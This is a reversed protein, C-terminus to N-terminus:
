DEKETYMCVMYTTLKYSLHKDFNMFLVLQSDRKPAYNVGYSTKPGIGLSLYMVGYVVFGVSCLFCTFIETNHKCTSEPEANLLAVAM